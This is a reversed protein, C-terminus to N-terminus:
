PRIELWCVRWKADPDSLNWAGALELGNAESQVCRWQRTGCPAQGRLGHQAGKIELSIVQCPYGSQVLITM